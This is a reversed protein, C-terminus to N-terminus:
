EHAYCNKPPLVSFILSFDTLKKEKNMEPVMTIACFQLFNVVEFFFNPHHQRSDLTKPGTEKDTKTIKSYTPTGMGQV